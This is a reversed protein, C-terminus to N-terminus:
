LRIALGALPFCLEADLTALGLAGCLARRWAELAPGWTAAARRARIDTTIDTLGIALLTPTGDVDILILEVDALTRTTSPPLDAGTMIFSTLDTAV